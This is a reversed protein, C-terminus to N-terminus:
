QCAVSAQMVSLAEDVTKYCLNNINFGNYTVGFSKDCYRRNQDRRNPYQIECGGQSLLSTCSITEDMAQMAEDLTDYCLGNTVFGNIEVGFSQDCFQQNADRQNSFLISCNGHNSERKCAHMDRIAEIAKDLSNYCRNSTLFGKYTVGFGGDCYRNNADSQNPNLVRCHSAMAAGSSFVSFVVLWLLAIKKM